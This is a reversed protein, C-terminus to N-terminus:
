PVVVELLMGPLFVEPLSEPDRDDLINVAYGREASMERLRRIADRCGYALLVRGGPKLHSPLGDLLSKLLEFSEDYLAFEDISKPTGLEWPPNSIILDFEEDAGIVSFATKNGLLVRRADLRDLLGMEKANFRANAVAAPNVDTAVVHEAGAALCCLSILGSGTGIELVTKQRVLSTTGILERLSTTDRPEWFVTEFVAIRGPFVPAREWMRVKNERDGEEDTTAPKGNRAGGEDRMWHAAGWGIVALATVACIVFVRRAAM